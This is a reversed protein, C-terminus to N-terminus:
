FPNRCSTLSTTTPMEPTVAASCARARLVTPRATKPSLPLGRGSSRRARVARIRHIGGVPDPCPWLRRLPRTPCERPRQRGTHHWRRWRPLSHRSDRRASPLGRSGLRCTSASAPCQRSAPCCTATARSPSFRVRAAGLRHALVIPQVGEPLGARSVAVEATLVSAGSAELYSGLQPLVRACFQLRFGLSRRILLYDAVHRHFDTV